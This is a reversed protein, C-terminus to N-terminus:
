LALNVIGVGFDIWDTFDDLTILEARRYEDDARVLVELLGDDSNLHWYHDVGLLAYARVSRYQAPGGAITVCLMPPAILADSAVAASQHVMVDPQLAGHLENPRWTRAASVEWGDPVACSLQRVVADRLHAHLRAADADRATCWAARPARRRLWDAAALPGPVRVAKM